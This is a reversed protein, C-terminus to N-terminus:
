AAAAYRNRAAPLGFRTRLDAGLPQAVLLGARLAPVLADVVSAIQRYPDPLILRIGEAGQAVSTQAAAVLEAVDAVDPRVQLDAIVKPRTGQGDGRLKAAVGAFGTGAPVFVVDAVRALALDGETTWGFAVLPQGQPPRPTISPGLVRFDASQFDIYHLKEGDVYRQSTVDRIVADDEWSDWLRRVVETAALTDSDLSPPDVAPFGKLAGIARGADRSRQQDLRQILLGARGASVYDLTAIATSVHFPEVFNLPAGAIIGIDRSRPALWNALLIADLGDRGLDAFRDELTLFEAAGDLRGVLSNWFGRWDPDDGHANTHLGFGLLITSKQTM